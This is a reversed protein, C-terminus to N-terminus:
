FVQRLLFTQFVEDGLGREKFLLPPVFPPSTLSLPTPNFVLSFRHFISLDAHISLLLPQDSKSCLRKVPM